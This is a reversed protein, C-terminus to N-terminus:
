AASTPPSRTPTPCSRFATPPMSGPQWAGSNWAPTATSTRSGCTRPADPSCALVAACSSGTPRGVARLQFGCTAVLARRDASRRHASRNGNRRLPNHTPKDPFTPIDARLGMTLTFNSAPRWQDGAYFGYQRVRFRAAQLPDGTLSFDYDYSQALGQEFLDLNSFQYNGFSNRIFLNRFKFFENKTGFTITHKGKLWTFDDSLEYVTQDLENATSFNERGARVTGSSLNVQVLPFPREEFPQRCRSPRRDEAVHVPSRQGVSGFASNLQFVTSNTRNKIRYFGDPMFYATVTPRGIDNLSDTLNHRAIM